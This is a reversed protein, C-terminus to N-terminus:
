IKGCVGTGGSFGTFTPHTKHPFSIRGQFQLMYYHSRHATSIEWGLLSLHLAGKLIVTLKLGTVAVPCDQLQQDPSLLM